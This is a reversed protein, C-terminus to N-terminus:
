CLLTWLKNYCEFEKVDFNQSLFSKMKNIVDINTGFFLINDVYLCIIM